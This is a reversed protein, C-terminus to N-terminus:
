TIPFAAICRKSSRAGIYTTSMTQPLFDDKGVHKEQELRIVEAYEQIANDFALGVAAQTTIADEVHATSATWIRYLAIGCFVLAFAVVACAFRTGLSKM